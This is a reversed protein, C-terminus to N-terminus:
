HRQRLRQEFNGRSHEPDTQAGSAEDPVITPLFCNPTYREGYLNADSSSFQQRKFVRTLVSSIELAIIYLNYRLEITYGIQM